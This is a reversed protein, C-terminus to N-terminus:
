RKNNLIAAARRSISKAQSKINAVKRPVSLTQGKISEAKSLSTMVKNQIDVAQKKIALAQSKVKDLDSLPPKKIALAQSKVKDLDSLPPKKISLAQNKQSTLKDLKNLQLNVAIGSEGTTIMEIEDFSERYLPQLEEFSLSLTAHTPFGNRYPGNYTGTVVTLASYGIDILKKGGSSSPLSSIKFVYPLDIAVGNRFGPCSYQELKKVPFVVNNYTDGEDVLQFEFDYKRRDSDQYSLPTDIRTQTVNTKGAATAMSALKQKISSTNTIAKILSVGANGIIAGENIGKIATAGAQSARSYLSEYGAWTHGLHEIISDPALFRFMEMKSSVNPEGNANVTQSILRQAQIEIWLCGDHDNSHPVIGTSPYNYYIVGTPDEDAM